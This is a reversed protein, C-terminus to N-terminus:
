DDTGTRSEGDASTNGPPHKATLRIFDFILERQSQPLRRWLKVAQAERSDLLMGTEKLLGYAKLPETIPTRLEKVINALTDLPVLPPTKTTTHPTGKELKSIYAKKKGILKALQDQTLPVAERAERLWRGFGEYDPM